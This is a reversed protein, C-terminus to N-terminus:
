WRNGSFRFDSIRGNGRATCTFTRSGGRDYRDYGRGYGDYGYGSEVVGRVRFRDGSRRDVDVIRVQGHGRGYREAQYACSNVAQSYGGRYRDRYNYGRGYGDYDYRDRSLAASIAAIGGIIAVGAIVDGTDIGGRDRHSAQAPTATSVIALAAAATGTVLKSIINM